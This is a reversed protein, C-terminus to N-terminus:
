GAEVNALGFRQLLGLVISCNFASAVHVGREPRVGVTGSIQAEPKPNGKDNLIRTESKAEANRRRAKAMM